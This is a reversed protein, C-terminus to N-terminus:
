GKFVTKGEKNIKFLIATYVLRNSFAKFLIDIPMSKNEDVYRQHRSKFRLPFPLYLCFCNHVVNSKIHKASTNVLIEDEVM